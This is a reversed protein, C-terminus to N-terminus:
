NTPTEPERRVVLNDRHILEDYGAKGLLEAFESSSRGAIRQLEELAYNSLGRGIERGREDRVVLVDGREFRGTIQTVGAPLLGSAGHNLRALSGGRTMRRHHTVQQM